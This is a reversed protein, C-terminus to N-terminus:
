PAQVAVAEPLRLIAGTKGGPAIEADDKVTVAEGGPLYRGLVAPNAWDLDWGDAIAVVTYEGPAVDLLNFSGDSDSQDRRALMAVARLDKPALVVMVGAVGKGDKRAFGQIRAAHATASVIVNLPRDSVTIQDGAQTKGGATVGTVQMEESEGEGQLSVRVTWVGPPVAPLRFTGREFGNAQMFGANQVQAAGPAPELSISGSTLPQGRGDEVLGKVEVTPAGADPDIEASATLNMEVEHPPDGQMFVYDGPALGAAEAPGDPGGVPAFGDTENLPAGFVIQRLNGPGAAGPTKQAPLDMHLAPVAHLSVDAEERSGGTLVIPTASAEDTTSDYYTVPYAVDLAAQQETEQQQARQDSPHNMAFWPKARVALLYEGAALGSFEYAGTDDATQTGAQEIHAGPDHGAPKRYLMVSANEVADGGDATVVGRLVAGPTLRFVLSGSEQGEGTVIATNFEGHQDYLSTCFGRKSASLQFKGAPLGALAFRGSGDTETSAFARSDDVTLIEVMAGSVPGGSLANMVTGAIRYTGSLAANTQAGASVAALARFFIAVGLLLSRAGDKRRSQKQRLPPFAHVRRQTRAASAFGGIRRSASESVRQHM